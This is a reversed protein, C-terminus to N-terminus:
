AEVDVSQDSYYKIAFDEFQYGHNKWDDIKEKQCDVAIYSGAFIDRVAGLGRQGARARFNHRIRSGVLAIDDANHLVHVNGKPKSTTVDSNWGKLMGWFNVAKKKKKGLAAMRGPRFSTSPNEQFVDAPM